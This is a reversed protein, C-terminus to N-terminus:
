LSAIYSLWAKKFSKKGFQEAQVRITKKDWSKREFRKVVAILSEFTQRSFYIGTKQDIITELAGGAGFAIVPRGSAQAELATLGFDEEQPFIFARCRQYLEKLEPESVRGLFEINAKAMRKLKAEDKGVGVIKLPRGLRNFALIALDVMKHPELRAVLLFFDGDKDGAQFEKIDIAPYILRSSRDYLDKIRKQVAKSIGVYHDVRMSAAKDWRRQFDLVPRALRRELWSFGARNLHDQQNLWLFRTPTLCYCIHTTEPKTIIGKAYSHSNSIVLEFGRFDFDEIAMPMLARYWDLRSQVFPKAQLFSLRYRSNPFDKKLQDEDALLFFLEAEPFLEVFDRLVREAGGQKAALYYEHVLAVRKPKM